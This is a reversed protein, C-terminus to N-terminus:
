NHFECDNALTELFVKLGDHFNALLRLQTVKKFLNPRNSQGIAAEFRPPMM